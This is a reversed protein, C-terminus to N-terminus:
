LSLHRLLHDKTIILKMFASWLYVCDGNTNYDVWFSLFFIINRSSSGSQLLPPNQPSQFNAFTTQPIKHIKQTKNCWDPQTSISACLATCFTFHAQASLLIPNQIFIWVPLLFYVSFPLHLTDTAFTNFKLLLTCVIRAM